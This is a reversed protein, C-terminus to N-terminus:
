RRRNKYVEYWYWAVGVPSMIATLVKGLLSDPWFKTRYKKPCHCYFRTLGAADIMFRMPRYRFYSIYDSLVCQRWYLHGPANERGGTMKTLRQQIDDAEDQCVILLAENVFRTKYHRAIQAWVASEPVHGPIQEPFPFRQLVDLRNFGWKDGSIKHRYYTELSDSDLWAEDSFRDGVIAGDEYVCLATVASFGDREAEPIAFWHYAFRELAEPICYDDSDLPLFLRGYAERVAHNHAMKKHQNTQWIYRIPFWTAADKQWSDVLKGTGDTSGDDIILWEFDRFTQQMLSQYVRHLTKERNYTPTFVTFLPRNDM